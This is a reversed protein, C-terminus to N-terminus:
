YAPDISREYRRRARTISSYNRHQTHSGYVVFRDSAPAFMLAVTVVLETSLNKNSKKVPESVARAM